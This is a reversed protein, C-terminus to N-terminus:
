QNGEDPKGQIASLLWQEPNTMMRQDKMTNMFKKFEASRALIKAAQAEEKEGINNVLNQFSPSSLLSDVSETTTTKKEALRKGLLVATGAGPFGISSTVGEAGALKPAISMIKSMLTDAGELKKQVTAIAGTKLGKQSDSIGKSVNYLDSMRQRAVPTLYANIANLSQKNRKMGEYWYAYNKFSIDGKKASKGFATAFGSVVVEKRMDEPIFRMLKIFRSSDGSPLSKMAGSLGGVFSRDLEKGFLSILDDEVGKRTATLAQAADFRAVAKEGGAAAIAARQDIRLAKEIQTLLAVPADGFTHSASRKAAGVSKRVDDILAYTPNGQLKKMIEKEASSLNASGGLDASRKDIFDMISKADVRTASPIAADVSEYLGKARAKLEAQNGEIRDKLKINLTSYDDTGGLENIINDARESVRKLGDAQKASFASGPTSSVVNAVERFAQNTTIHNPSLWDTIGLREASAITERNPASMLALAAVADKDGKGAKRFTEVMDPQIPTTIAQAAQRTAAVDKAVDTPSSGGKSVVQRQFDDLIKSTDAEAPKGDVYVGQEELNSRSQQLRAQEAASDSAAQQELQVSQRALDADLPKEKAAETVARRDKIVQGGAKVIRGAAPLAGGIAGAALIDQGNFDGGTAKQTGEIVAQTGAGALASGAITGVKAAPSFGLIGAAARPIDSMQFGPKIAYEKGNLSSKIIFNDKEDRRISVGPFQAQIVKTTEEPSTLLTGLAAKFSKFNEGSGPNMEPMDGVDELKDIEATRRDAGTFINAANELAGPIRDPTTVTERPITFLGARYDAEFEAADQPSMKGERYARWVGKNIDAMQM